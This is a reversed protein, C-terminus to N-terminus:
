RTLVGAIATFDDAQPGVFLPGLLAFVEETAAAKKLFLGNGVISYTKVAM